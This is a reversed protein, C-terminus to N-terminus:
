HSPAVLVIATAGATYVTNGVRAYAVVTHSGPSVGALSVDATYPIETGTNAVTTDYVPAGGFTVLLELAGPVKSFFTGALHLTGVVSEGDVPSDLTATPPAPLQLSEFDTSTTGANDIAQVRVPHFGSALNKTDLSFHYANFPQGAACPQPACTNPTTLTNASGTPFDVVTAVSNIGSDSTALAYVDFATPGLRTSVSLAANASHIQVRRSVVLTLFGVRRQITASLLHTGTTVGDLRLSALYQPAVDSGSISETDIGYTVFLTNEDLGAIGEDNTLSVNVPSELPEPQDLVISPIQAPLAPTLSTTPSQGLVVLPVSHDPMVAEVRLPATGNISGTWKLSSNFPDHLALVGDIAVWAGSSDQQEIQYHTAAAFRDFWQLTLRNASLDLTGNLGANAADTADQSASPAPTSGDGSGGGCASLLMIMLFLAYLRLSRLSVPM